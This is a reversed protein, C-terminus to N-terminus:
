SYEPVTKGAAATELVRILKKGFERSSFHTRAREAAQERIHAFREPAELFAAIKARLQEADHPEVVLATVGDEVYDRMSATNSVILTKGLAMNELLVTHGSGWRIDALPIIHLKARKYYGRLQEIPIAQLVEM